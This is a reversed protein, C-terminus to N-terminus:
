DEENELKLDGLGRMFGLINSYRVVAMQKKTGQTADFDVHHKISLYEEPTFSETFKSVSKVEDMFYARVSKINKIEISGGGNFMFAAVQPFNLNHSRLYEFVSKYLDQAFRKNAASVEEGVWVDTAGQTLNGTHFAKVLEAENPLYGEKTRSIEESLYTLLQSTAKDLTKFSNKQPRFEKMIALDTTSHGMDVSVNMLEGFKEGAETMEGEADTFCAIFSVVSEPKVVIRDRTLKIVIKKGTTNNTVTIERDLVGFLVEKLEHFYDRPPVLLGVTLDDGNLGQEVITSYIVGIANLYFEEQVVKLADSQLGQHTSSMDEALNGLIWRQNEIKTILSHVEKDFQEVKKQEFKITLDLVKEPKSDDLDYDSTKKEGDHAWIKNSYDKLSQEWNKKILGTKSLSAGVDIGLYMM